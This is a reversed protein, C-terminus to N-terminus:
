QVIPELDRNSYEGLCGLQLIDCGMDM